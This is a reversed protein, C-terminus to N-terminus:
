INYPIHFIFSWLVSIIFILIFFSCHLFKGSLNHFMLLKASSLNYMESKGIKKLLFADAIKGSVVVKKNNRSRHYKLIVILFLSLFIKSLYYVNFFSEFLVYNLCFTSIKQRMSAKILQYFAAHECSYCITCVSM